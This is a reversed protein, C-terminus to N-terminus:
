NNGGDDGENDSTDAGALDGDESGDPDDVVVSEPDASDHSDDVTDTGADPYDGHDDATATAEPFSDEADTEAEQQNGVDEAEESTTGDTTATEEPPETDALVGAVGWLPVLTTIGLLMVSGIWKKTQM